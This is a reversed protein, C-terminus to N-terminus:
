VGLIEFILVIKVLFRTVLLTNTVLEIIGFYYWFRVRNYEM